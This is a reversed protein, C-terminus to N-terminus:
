CHYHRMKRANVVRINNSLSGRCKGHEKATETTVFVNIRCVNCPKM